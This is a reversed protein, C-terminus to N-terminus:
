GCKYYDANVTYALRRSNLRRGLLQSGSVVQDSISVLTAQGYDVFDLVSRFDYMNPYTCTYIDRLGGVVYTERKAKM